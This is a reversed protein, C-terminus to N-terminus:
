GERQRKWQFKKIIEQETTITVILLGSGRPLTQAPPFKWVYLDRGTTGREIEYPDGLIPFLKEVRDGHLGAVLAQATLVQKADRRSKYMTRLLAATYAILIFLTLSVLEVM